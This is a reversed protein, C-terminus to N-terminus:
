PKRKFKQELASADYVARLTAVDRIAQATRAPDADRAAQASRVIMDIYRFANMQMPPPGPLTLTPRVCHGAASRVWVAAVCFASVLEEHGFQM